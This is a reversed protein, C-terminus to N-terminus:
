SELGEDDAGPPASRISGSYDVFAKEGARHVQRMSPELKDRYGAYLDCFQSYQYPLAGSGRAAVSEQYELWLLQLTVASRRLERHVWAFDIPARASPENRGLHRFLRQEVETDTLGKAEQWTLGADQARRLYDSVSGKAIACSAAIARHGLGLEYKLRLVERIKRMSHREAM